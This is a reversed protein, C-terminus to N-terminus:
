AQTHTLYALIMARQPHGSLWARVDKVKAFTEAGLRTAYTEEIKAQVDERVADRQWSPTIIRLLHHHLQHNKLVQWENGDLWFGGCTTCNDVHFPLQHGVRYKMLLHHCQPCVKAQTIDEVQLEASPTHSPTDPMHRALWADYRSRAIWLGACAECTLAMLGPEVEKQILTSKACSLCNM